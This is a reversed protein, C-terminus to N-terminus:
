RDPDYFSGTPDDEEPLHDDLFDSGFDDQNLEDSLAPLNDTGLDAFNVPQRLRAMTRWVEEYLRHRALDKIQDKFNPYDVDDALAYALGPWQDRNIILRYRYDDKPTEIVGGGQVSLHLGYRETFGLLRELDQEARARIQIKTHDQQSVTVSFFGYRTFLWM